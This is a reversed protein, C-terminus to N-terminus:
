AYTILLNRAITILYICSTFLFIGTLGYYFPPSPIKGVQRYSWICVIMLSIKALIIASFIGLYNSILLLLPNAEPIGKSLGIVTSILDGAQCALM